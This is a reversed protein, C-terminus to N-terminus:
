IVTSVVSWAACVTFAGVWEGAIGGVTMILLLVNRRAVVLRFWTDFMRFLFANFGFRVHFSIETARGIVYCALIIGCATWIERGSTPHGLALGHALCLWWLPPHIVDNGHDLWNGVKSSTVTVRALKGDVTDLFTMAWAAILGSGLNGTFFLWGALVTLALGLFTVHNPQVGFRAAARTVLLAPRPWLWKTILDTVGKYVSSFLLQEADHVSLENLSIAILGSRRRLKRTYIEGIATPTTEPFGAQDGQMAEAAQQAKNPDIAIALRQGAATSLITGPNDALWQIAQDDLVASADAVILTDIGGAQRELRDAPTLGFITKDSHGVVQIM